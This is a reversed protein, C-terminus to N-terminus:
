EFYDKYIDLQRKAIERLPCHINTSYHKNFLDIIGEYFRIININTINKLTQHEIDGYKIIEIIDINENRNNNCVEFKEIYDYLLKWDIFTFYFPLVRSYLATNVVYNTNECTDPYFFMNLSSSSQINPEVSSINIFYSCNDNIERKDFLKDTNESLFLTFFLLFINMNNRM